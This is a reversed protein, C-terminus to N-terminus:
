GQAWAQALFEPSFLLLQNHSICWSPFTAAASPPSPLAAPGRGSFRSRVNGAEMSERSDWGKEQM